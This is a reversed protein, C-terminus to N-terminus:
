QRNDSQSRKELLKGLKKTVSTEFDVFLNKFKAKSQSTLIELAEIFFAVHDHPDSNCLFFQEM